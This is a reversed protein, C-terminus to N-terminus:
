NINKTNKKFNISKVGKIIIEIKSIKTKHIKTKKNVFKTFKIFKM